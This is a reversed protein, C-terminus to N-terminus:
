RVLDFYRPYVLLTVSFVTESHKWLVQGIVVDVVAADAAVAVVVVIVM